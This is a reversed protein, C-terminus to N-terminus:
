DEIYWKGNLIIEALDGDEYNEALDYLVADLTWRAFEIDYKECSLGIAIYENKCARVVEMFSVPKKVEKWEHELNIYDHGSEWRLYNLGDVSIELPDGKRIFKKEPNETLEKIMEWTKM